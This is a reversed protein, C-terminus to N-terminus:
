RKERRFKVLYGSALVKAIIGWERKYFINFLLKRPIPLFDSFLIPFFKIDKLDNEILIRSMEKVSIRQSHNKDVKKGLIKKIKLVIPHPPSTIIIATAGPSMVKKVNRLVLPKNPIYEIARSFFILDFGQKELEAELFGSIMTKVRKSRINERHERIMEESLDLSTIKAKPFLDLLVKTWTGPGCGIELIKKASIGKLHHLISKKSLAYQQKHRSSSFWRTSEYGRGESKVKNNYYTKMWETFEKDESTLKPEM